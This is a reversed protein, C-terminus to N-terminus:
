RSAIRACVVRGDIRRLGPRHHVAGPNRPQQDTPWFGALLNVWDISQWVTTGDDEDIVVLFDDDTASLIFRIRSGMSGSILRQPPTPGGQDSGTRSPESLCPNAVQTLSPYDRRPFTLLRQNSCPGQQPVSRSIAKWEGRFPSKGPDVVTM